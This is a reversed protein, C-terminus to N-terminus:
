PLADFSGFAKYASQNCLEKQHQLPIIPLRSFIGALLAHLPRKAQPERRERLGNLSDFFHSFGM